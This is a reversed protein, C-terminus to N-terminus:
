GVFNISPLTGAVSTADTWAAGTGGSTVDWYLALFKAGTEIEDLDLSYAVGTPQNVPTSITNAGVVDAASSNSQKVRLVGVPTGTATCGVSLCAMRAWPPVPVWLTVDDASLDAGQFDFYATHNGRPDNKSITAM